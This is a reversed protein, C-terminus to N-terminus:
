RAMRYKLSIVSPSWPNMMESRSEPESTIGATFYLTASRTNAADNM